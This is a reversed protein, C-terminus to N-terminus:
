YFEEPQFPEYDAEGADEYSTAPPNDVKGDCEPCLVMTGYVSTQGCKAPVVKASYRTPVVQTTPKGCPRNSM